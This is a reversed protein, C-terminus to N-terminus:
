PLCGYKGKNRCDEAGKAILVALGVVVLGGGVWWVWNPVGTDETSEAGAAANLRPGAGNLMDISGLRLIPAGGFAFGAELSSTYQYTPFNPRESEFRWSPGIGLAFTPRSETQSGGGFPIRLRLMSAFGDPRAAGYQPFSDAVGAAHSTEVSMITLAVSAVSGVLRKVITSRVGIISM